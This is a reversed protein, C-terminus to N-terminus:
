QQIGWPFLFTSNAGPEDEVVVPRLHFISLSKTILGEEMGSDLRKQPVNGLERHLVAMTDVLM